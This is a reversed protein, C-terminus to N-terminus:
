ESLRPRNVVSVMGAAFVLFGGVALPIVTFGTSV